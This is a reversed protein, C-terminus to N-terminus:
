NRSCQQCLPLRRPQHRHHRESSLRLAASGFFARVQCGRRERVAAAGGPVARERPAAAACAQAAGTAAGAAPGATAAAATATVAGATTQGANCREHMTRQERAGDRVQPLVDARRQGGAEHAGRGRVTSGDGQVPRLLLGDDHKGKRDASHRRGLLVTAGDSSLQSQGGARAPERACPEAAAVAPQAGAQPDAGPMNRDPRESSQDSARWVTAHGRPAGGPAATPWPGHTDHCECLGAARARRPRRNWITTQAGGGFNTGPRPSRTRAGGRSAVRHRITTM